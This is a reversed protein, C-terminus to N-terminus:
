KMKLKQAGKKDIAVKRGNAVEFNVVKSPIEKSIKTKPNSGM